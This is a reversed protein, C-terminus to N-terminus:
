MSSAAGPAIKQTLSGRHAICGSGVQHILRRRTRQEVGRRIRGHDDIIASADHEGVQLDLADEAIRAAREHTLRDLDQDGLAVTSRVHSMARAENSIRARPRHSGAQLEVTQLVVARLDRDLDAQAWQARGASRQHRCRDAVDAVALLALILDAADLTMEQARDLADLSRERDEIAGIAEHQAVACVAEHPAAARAPLEHPPAVRLEQALPDALAQEVRAHVRRGLELAHEPLIVAVWSALEVHAQRVSTAHATKRAAGGFAAEDLADEVDGFVDLALLLQESCPALGFRRASGLALKESGHAVLQARREVCNQAERLEQVAVLLRRERVAMALPDLVHHLGALV